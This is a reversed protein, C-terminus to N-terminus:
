VGLNYIMQGLKKSSLQYKDAYKFIHKRFTNKDTLGYKMLLFNAVWFYKEETSGFELAHLMRKALSLLVEKRGM